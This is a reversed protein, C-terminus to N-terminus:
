KKLSSTIEEFVFVNSDNPFDIANELTGPETTSQVEVTSVLSLFCVSNRSSSNYLIQLCVFSVTM